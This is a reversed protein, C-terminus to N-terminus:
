SIFLNDHMEENIKQSLTLNQRICEINSCEINGARLYDNAIVKLNKIRM